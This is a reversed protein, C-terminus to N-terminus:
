DIEYTIKCKSCLFDDLESRCRPCVKEYIIVDEAEPPGHNFFNCEWCTDTFGDVFNERELYGPCDKVPCDM